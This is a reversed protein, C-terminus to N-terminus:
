RWYTDYGGAFKECPCSDNELPLDTILWETVTAFEYEVQERNCKKCWRRSPNDEYRFLKYEEYLRVLTLSFNVIILLLLCAGFIQLIM